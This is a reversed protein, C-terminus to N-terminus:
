FNPVDAGTKVPAEIKYLRGAKNIARKITSILKLFSFNEKRKRRGEKSRSNIYVTLIQPLRQFIM